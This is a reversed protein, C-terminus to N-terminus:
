GVEGARPLGGGAVQERRAAARQGADDVGEVRVVPCREGPQQLLQEGPEVPLQPVGLVHAPHAVPGGARVCRGARASLGLAVAGGGGRVSGRAPGEPARFAKGGPVSRAGRRVRGRATRAAGDREIRARRARLRASGGTAGSSGRKPRGACRGGSLASRSGAGEWARRVPSRRRTAPGPPPPAAGWGANGGAARVTRVLRSVRFG